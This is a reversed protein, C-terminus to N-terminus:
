RVIGASSRQLFNGILQRLLQAVPFGQERALGDLTAAQWRPLLLELEVIEADSISGGPCDNVLKLISLNMLEDGGPNVQVPSPRWNKRHKKRCSRGGSRCMRPHRSGSGSRLAPSEWC